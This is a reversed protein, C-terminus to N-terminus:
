RAFVYLPGIHGKDAGHVDLAIGRVLHDLATCLSAHGGDGTTGQEQALVLAKGLYVVKHQVLGLDGQRREEGVQLAPRRLPHVAGVLEGIDPLSRHGSKLQCPEAAIGRHADLVRAATREVAIKAVDGGHESVPRPRFRGPLDHGLQVLHVTQAPAFLDKKDVVVKDAVFLV